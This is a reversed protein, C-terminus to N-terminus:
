KSPEVFNNENMKNCIQLKKAREAFSKRALDIELIKCILENIENYKKDWFIIIEAGRYYSETFTLFQLEV